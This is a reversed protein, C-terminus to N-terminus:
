PWYPKYVHAYRTSGLVSFSRRHYFFWSSGAASYYFFGGNNITNWIMQHFIVLDIGLFRIHKYNQLQYLFLTTALLPIIIFNLISSANKFSINFIRDLDKKFLIIETSLFCLSSFIATVFWSPMELKANGLNYLSALCIIVISFFIAIFHKIQDRFFESQVLFSKKLARKIFSKTEM